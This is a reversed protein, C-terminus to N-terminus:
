SKCKPLKRTTYGLICHVHLSDNVRDMIPTVSPSVLSMLPSLSSIKQRAKQVLHLPIGFYKDLLVCLTFPTRNEIELVPM